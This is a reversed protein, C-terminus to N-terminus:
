NSKGPCTLTDTTRLAWELLAQPTDLLVTPEEEQLADKSAAGYSVAVTALGADAGCRMDFVSDGIFLSRSAECGLRQLALRASEPHPKPDHVDSACVTADIYGAWDIRQMFSELEFRNKSTVLAIRAGSQSFIKLAEIAPYFPQELSVHKEFAEMAFETMEEIEQESPESDTFLRLQKRLPTGILGRVVEPTLHVGRYKAFTETLGAVIMDVSDMLTGDVDFLVAEITTPIPRGPMGKM